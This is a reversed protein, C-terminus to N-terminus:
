SRTSPVHCLGEKAADIISAESLGVAQCKVHVFRQVYSRVTEDPGQKISFLHGSTIRDDYNGQFNALLTDKLQEWSFTNGGGPNHVVNPRNGHHGDHSKQGKYGRGRGGVPHSSRLVEYSIVQPM